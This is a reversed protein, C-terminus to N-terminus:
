LPGESLVLVMRFPRYPRFSSPLLRVPRPLATLMWGFATFWPKLSNNGASPGTRGAWASPRTTSCLDSQVLARPTQLPTSRSFGECWDFRSASLYTGHIVRRLTMRSRFCQGGRLPKWRWPALLVCARTKSWVDHIVRLLTMWPVM